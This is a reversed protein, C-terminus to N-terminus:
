LKPLTRKAKLRQAYLNKWVQEKNSVTVKVPAMKISRHYSRNYGTVLDKLVPLFSLTNKVTFYRYMRKKLTRNFREIVSAKTDGSTSFHRIDKRKMLAQFTKNYFEKGDDTQLRRPTRGDSRKLIKEFAATVDKDTKTRVPEVWAYKSLVDVVTLLYRYGVWDSGPNPLTGRKSSIRWGSIMSPLCWCLYPVFVDDRRNTFRTVWIPKLKERFKAVPLKRAKAFRTVGGVRGAVTSDEYLSLLNAYRDVKKKRKKTM